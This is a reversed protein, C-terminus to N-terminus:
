RSLRTKGFAGTYFWFTLRAVLALAIFVALIPNDRLTRILSRTGPKFRIACLDYFKV